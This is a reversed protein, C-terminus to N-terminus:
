RVKVVKGTEDLTVEAYWTHLKPFHPGEICCTGPFKPDPFLGGPHSVTVRKGASIAEKLAKKTKFNISTYAM